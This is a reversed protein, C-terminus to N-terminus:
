GAATDEAKEAAERALEAAIEEPTAEAPEAVAAALAGLVSNLEDLDGYAEIRSHAKTVREGSFLSTKGHDGTGTYIKM